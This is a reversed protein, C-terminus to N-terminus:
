NDHECSLCESRSLLWQLGNTLGLTWLFERSWISRIIRLLAAPISSLWVGLAAGVIEEVSANGEGERGSSEVVEICAVIRVLDLM